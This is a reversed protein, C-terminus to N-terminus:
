PKGAGPTREAYLRLLEGKAVKGYATRPLADVQVVGRPLKYRAIRDQLFATLSEHSAGIQNRPVVFAIGVEGWREDPVGVVAVDAVAPHQLLEAEIETPYVNVGGSIFMDKRRGVIYFFGDADMRAMDGTHFWGDADLVAATADPANWYGLSVHPGGLWLEGVEGAPVTRGEDDVLRAATMMLPKGISGPKRTSDEDTMAFCNVGVETLGYGQRFIIGRRRYTDAIFDPLPAGGSIFWRVHSLDATAFEPADSLLKWITPVGLVVTCREQEITRWVEAADFHRHLVCTGGIAVLPMLFVALGGAHYLPTFISSVDDARLQWGMVTNYANWVIMRHPIMVGKPTGTTGSTYLLAFLDEGGCPERTFPAHAAQELLRPYDQGLGVWADLSVRERLDAITSGLEPDFVLTRLGSNEVIGSLERATLRTNLPVLIVGTKAAAFVFDLFEVSNHSLLGLRDGKRLGLTHVLVRACAEARANLQAYSMRVGTSVDVLALSLPTLRTREGLLDAHLM